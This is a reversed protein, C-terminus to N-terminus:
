GNGQRTKIWRSGPDGAVSEAKAADLAQKIDYFNRRRTINQGQEGIQEELGMLIVAAQAYSSYAAAWSAAAIATVCADLATSFAAATIAM